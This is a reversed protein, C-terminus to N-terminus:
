ASAVRRIACPSIRPTQFTCEYGGKPSPFAMKYAFSSRRISPRVPMKRERIERQTEVIDNIADRRSSKNTAKYFSTTDLSFSCQSVGSPQSLFIGRKSVLLCHKPQSFVNKISLIFFEEREGREGKERALERSGTRRKLRSSVWVVTIVRVQLVTNSISVIFFDTPVKENFWDFTQEAM